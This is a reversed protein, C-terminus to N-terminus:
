LSPNQTPPPPPPFPAAAFPAVAYPAAAYPAAAHPAAAYQPAALFAPTTLAASPAGWQYTVSYPASPQHPTHTFYSPHARDVTADERARKESALASMETRLADLQTKVEGILAALTATLDSPFRSPDAESALAQHPVRTGSAKRPHAKPPTTRRKKAPSEDAARHPAVDQVVNRQNSEPNSEADMPDCPQEVPKEVEGEQVDAEDQNQEIESKDEFAMDELEDLTLPQLEKESFTRTKCLDIFHKRLREELAPRKGNLPLRYKKCKHKLMEVRRMDRAAYVRENIWKAHQDATECDFDNGYMYHLIAHLLAKFHPSKARMAIIHDTTNTYAKVKCTTDFDDVKEKDHVYAVSQDDEDKHIDFNVVFCDIVREIDALEHIKGGTNTHKASVREIVDALEEILQGEYHVDVEYEQAEDDSM